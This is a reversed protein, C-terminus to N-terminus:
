LLGMACFKQAKKALQIAEDVDAISTVVDDVYFDRMIFQSGPLCARVRRLLIIKVYNACGTSSAVSFLYVKMCFEKVDKNGDECM